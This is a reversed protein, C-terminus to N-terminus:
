FGLRYVVEGFIASIFEFVQAWLVYIIFILLAMILITFLTLAIIKATEQGTFNNVEKLALVGLVLVWVIMILSTLTVLFQENVTLVHTLVFSVPTLLIYPMLSYCFYTYIKKITGEGENITCVLYNCATLAIIVIVVTGIDSMIEYRGERVGKWLFGCLYKNIIYEVTFIGLIISPAAWSARGERAIGYSGDIPHKMFYFAYSLNSVVKNEKMRKKTDRVFNFIGKKKDLVKLVKVVVYLAVAVVLVTVLNQKLWVNRIEWFAESYGEYDKALKAYHLAMEYNEEQFYARGMAQNAYDFMSNMELIQSLPEKSETYRGKSYLYLAEHLLNTFETPEYVQIQCKDMDLIYIRDSTDMQISSALTSLGVRQTGDDPGGFVFLLDGESNYEYIYGQQDVVFVNDYGGATVAAPIDAYGECKEILNKGAINLRKLSTLEDGRTVTYILGKEDIALNDPTSPLNSVMKARQADTMIMRYVITMIDQAAFNTGFYGLFTGGESPSIQVIGNTNKECVVYMIGADNVVIKIPLFDLTEGYLPSDPKTYTNVVNGNEDFEFVAQADRDAVYVHNNDTVFVGKPTKLTGEGIITILDGELNGVVIRSNGTDAVYIRGDETVCMDSPDVIFEDGFKTITKYALYATQTEQIYGYGDMTYTKYPTEAYATMSGMGSILTFAILLMAFLKLVNKNGKRM